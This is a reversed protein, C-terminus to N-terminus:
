DIPILSNLVAALGGYTEVEKYVFGSTILNGITEPQRGGRFSGTYTLQIDSNLNYNATLTECMTTGLKQLSGQEQGLSLHYKGLACTSFYDHDIHKEPPADNVFKIFGEM